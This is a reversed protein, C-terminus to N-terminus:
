PDDSGADAQVNDRTRAAPVPTGGGHIVHFDGAQKQDHQPMVFSLGLVRRKHASVIIAVPAARDFGVDPHIVSIHTLIEAAPLETMHSIGADTAICSERLIERQICFRVLTLLDVAVAHFAPAIVSADAPSESSKIDYRHNLRSADIGVSENFIPRLIKGRFM